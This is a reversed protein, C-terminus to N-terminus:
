ISKNRKEKEWYNEGARGKQKKRKRIRERVLDYKRERAKNGWRGRFMQLYCYLHTTNVYVLAHM